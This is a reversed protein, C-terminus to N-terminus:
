QLWRGSFKFTCVVLETFSLLHTNFTVTLTMEQGQKKWTKYTKHKYSALIDPSRKCSWQDEPELMKESVTKGILALINHPVEKLLPPPPPMFIMAVHGLHGGHGYISFVKLM